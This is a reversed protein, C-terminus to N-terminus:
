STKEALRKIEKDLPGEYDEEREEKRRENALPIKWVLFRASFVGGVVKHM